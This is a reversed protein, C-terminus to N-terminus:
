ERYREVPWYLKTRFRGFEFSHRRCQIRSGCDIDDVFVCGVAWWLWCIFGFYCINVSYNFSFYFWFIWLYTMWYNSSTTFHRMCLAAFTKRITTLSFGRNVHMWDSIFGTCVSVIINVIRPVSSYVANKQIPIHLVDNMYKPLDTNVVYFAWSYLGKQAILYFCVFTSSFNSFSWVFLTLSVSCVLLAIVPTNTIIAKWPTPPLNKRNSELYASTKNKLFSKESESM